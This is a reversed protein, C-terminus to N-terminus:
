KVINNENGSIERSNACTRLSWTGFCRDTIGNPYYATVFSLICTTEELDITKSSLRITEILDFIALLRNVPDVFLKNIKFGVFQFLEDSVVM